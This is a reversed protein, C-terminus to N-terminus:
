VLQRLNSVSRPSHHTQMSSRCTTSVQSEAPLSTENTALLGEYLRTRVGELSVSDIQITSMLFQELQHYEVEQSLGMSDVANMVAAFAASSAPLLAFEYDRLTTELQVKTLEVLTASNYRPDARSILESFQRSFDMATSPNLLWQNAQLVVREMTEIQEATYANRSLRAMSAVSLVTPEHIKIATYLSTIAALQFASRDTLAWDTVMMFRDLLKTAIAVTERRFKCHDIIKVMWDIMQARCSIDVVGEVHALRPHRLYDGTKYRVERMRMVEIKSILSSMEEHSDKTGTYEMDM